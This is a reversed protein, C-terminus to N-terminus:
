LAPPLEDGLEDDLELATAPDWRDLLDAIATLLRGHTGSSLAPEGALRARERDVADALDRLVSARGDDLARDDDRLQRIRREIRGRMYGHRRRTTTGSIRLQETVEEGPTRRCPLTDLLLAGATFARRVVRWLSRM